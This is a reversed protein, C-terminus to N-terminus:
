RDDGAAHYEEVSAAIHGRQSATIGHDKAWARIDGSRQRSAL